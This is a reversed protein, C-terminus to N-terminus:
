IVIELFQINASHAHGELLLSKNEPNPANLRAHKIQMKVIQRIKLM